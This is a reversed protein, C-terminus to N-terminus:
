TGVMISTARDAHAREVCAGIPHSRFFREQPAHRLGCCRWYILFSMTPRNMSRGTTQGASHKPLRELYRRARPFRRGRTRTRADSRQKRARNPRMTPARREGGHTGGPSLKARTGMGSPEGIAKRAEIM